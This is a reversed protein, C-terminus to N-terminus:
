NRDRKVGNELATQPTDRTERNKERPHWLKRVNKTETFIPFNNYYMINSKLDKYGTLNTM